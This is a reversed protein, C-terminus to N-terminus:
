PCFSRRPVAISTKTDRDGILAERLPIKVRIAEDRTLNLANHITHM